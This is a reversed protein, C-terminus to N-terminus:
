YYHALLNVDSDTADLICKFIPIWDVMYTVYKREVMYKAVKIYETLLQAKASNSYTRLKLQIHSFMTMEPDDYDDADRATYFLTYIQKHLELPM